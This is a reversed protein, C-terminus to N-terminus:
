EAAEIGGADTLRVWGHRTLVPVLRPDGNQNVLWGHILAQNRNSEVGSHCRECLALGNSATNTSERRSGGSGRPRRHHHQPDAWDNGCKECVGSSRENILDHVAPTFGTSRRRKTTHERTRNLPSRRITM